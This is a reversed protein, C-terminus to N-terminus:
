RGCRGRLTKERLDARAQRHVDNSPPAQSSLVIVSSSHDALTAAHRQNSTNVAGNERKEHKEELRGASGNEECLSRRKCRLCGLRRQRELRREFAREGGVRRNGGGPQPPRDIERASRTAPSRGFGSTWTSHSFSVGFCDNPTPTGISSPPFRARRSSRRPLSAEPRRLRAPRLGDDVDPRLHAARVERSQDRRADPAAPRAAATRSARGRRPAPASRRRCRAAARPQQLPLQRERLGLVFRRGRLRGRTRRRNLQVRQEPQREVRRQRERGRRSAAGASVASTASVRACVDM